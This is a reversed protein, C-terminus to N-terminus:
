TDREPGNRQLPIVEFVFQAAILCAAYPLVIIYREHRSYWITVILFLFRYVMGGAFAAYFAADTSRLARQLAWRTLAGNFLGAALGAAAARLASWIM